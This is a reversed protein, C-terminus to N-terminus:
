VDGTEVSRAGEFETRTGGLGSFTFNEFCNEGYPNKRETWTPVPVRSELLQGWIIGNFYPHSKLKQLTHPNNFDFVNSNINNGTSNNPTSDDKNKTCNKVNETSINNDNGSSNTDTKTDKKGTTTENNQSM